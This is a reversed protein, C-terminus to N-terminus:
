IKQEQASMTLPYNTVVIENIAGRKSVDSNIIRKAPVRIITYDCYIEDFFLDQPNYNKPDSNSLMVLSGKIDLQKFLQALQIQERDAFEHKSYANFNATKSIPRYPPDFYVFSQSKLDKIIELFSAKKIEAVQLIKHVALLNQEDCITPNKYDGAPVNFEGKSNV